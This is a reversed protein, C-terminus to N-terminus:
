VMCGKEKLWGKEKGPPMWRRKIETGGGWDDGETVNRRQM